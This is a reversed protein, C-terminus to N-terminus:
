PQVELPWLSAATGMSLRAEQLLAVDNSQAPLYEEGQWGWEPWGGAGPSARSM